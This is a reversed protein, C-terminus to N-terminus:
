QKEQIRIKDRRLQTTCINLQRVALALICLLALYVLLIPTFRM